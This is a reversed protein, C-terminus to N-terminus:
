LTSLKDPNVIMYTNRILGDEIEPILCSRAKGGQLFLLAPQANLKVRRLEFQGYWKRYLGLYFRTIVDAGKLINLAALAKGDGDSHVQVDRHLLSELKDYQQEELAKLFTDLLQNFQNESVEKKPSTQLKDQARKLLQRSAPVTIDLVGAIEKHSYDLSHRLLYVAREKPNLRELLVMLSYSLIYKRDVREYIDNTM